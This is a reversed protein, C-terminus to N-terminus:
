IDIRTKAIEIIKELTQEMTLESNDLIVADEAAVAPAVDRNKDNNDREIMEALVDDYKADMGKEKLELVRRMARCEVSATLFIKVEADPLIVTGIDRGDMVVNNARAVSKQTELLFSRVAPIASVASAYMSIEPERIKDGLNEGNLYVCQTGNEYKVEINIDKLHPTVEEASKPNAGVSRIYYGVTRYLAGTDVYVIGMKKSLAKAVSSKGAGSPGDIAIKFM